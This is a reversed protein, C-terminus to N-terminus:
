KTEQDDVKADVIIHSIFDNIARYVSYRKEYLNLRFNDRNTKHQQYAIYVAIVAIIPTLLTSALDALSNLNM